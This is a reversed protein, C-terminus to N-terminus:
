CLIGKELGILQPQGPFESSFSLTLRRYAHASMLCRPPPLVMVRENHIEVRIADDVQWDVIISNSALQGNAAMKIGVQEEKMLNGKRSEM